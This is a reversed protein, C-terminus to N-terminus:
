KIEGLRVNWVNLSDTGFVKNEKVVYFDTFRKISTIRQEANAPDMFNQLFYLIGSYTKDDIRHLPEFVQISDISYYISPLKNKLGKRVLHSVKQESSANKNEGSVAVTVNESLFTNQIMESAKIRFSMDLSTDTMIQIYDFLDTLKQKATTEYAYLSVETLYDTKFENRIDERVEELATQEQRAIEEEDVCSPAGIVLLMLIFTLIQILKNM